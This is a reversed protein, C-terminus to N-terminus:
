LVARMQRILEAPLYPKRLFGAPRYGAMRTAMELENYGSCVVVRTDPKLEVMARFVEAGDMGPMTLDLLVAQLTSAHQRFLNLGESGNEASIVSLGASELISCSLKRVAEEDEVVLVTGRGQWAVSDSTNEPQRVAPAETAEPRAPFLVRVTTGKGPSSIVKISGQHSRVIGLVAALGLGRGPFKTTFFPDFMRPMTISDMGCGNDSVELYVYLGPLMTRGAVLSPLEGAAAWQMGTAVVIEGPQDGLAESANTALNMVIQRLQGADAEIRPLDRELHLRVEAKKSTTSDLLRATDEV